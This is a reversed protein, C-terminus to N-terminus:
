INFTLGDYATVYKGKENKLKTDLFEKISVEDEDSIHTLYVLKAKLQNSSDVLDQLEIHSIESIIIEIKRDSFLFMDDSKGIDGTYFINKGNYDFLFSSCSFSLSHSHDYIKYKDLHSNQKSIFNFNKCIEIEEGHKYGIFNVEFNLKEKFLYLRYLSDRVVDVLSQHIFIDLKDKRLNLKMQVILANLGASHDPHLHSIVIGDISNFHIGQSLLAKSIGDGSDVLLRYDKLTFLLSSHFRKLSTKGSGTGIFNIEM